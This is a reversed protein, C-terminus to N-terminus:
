GQTAEEGPSLYRHLFRLLAEAKPGFSDLEIYEDRTHFGEGRLGLGDIVPLGVGAVTNADSGGGVLPHESSGLGSAHQCEAYAKYLDLSQATREMPLRKVGGSVALTTGAVATTRAGENLKAILGEADAITEFRLDVNIEAHEPVTNSSTGGRVLGVNVTLGRGYDTLSQAFDIFRGLSWIANAGNAHANGSHAAKGTSQVRVEGVGRRCTVIADGKRGSEFVLAAEAVRALAEIHPKSDLSGIEEDSVSIVALPLEALLAADAFAKLVGWIVALGGKMDLCGPGYGRGAEERFGEFHGPPFVTDHHGILLIPRRRSAEPTMWFLHDGVGNGAERRFELGPLAFASQLRDAMANVAAVEKSYSNVNVWGRTHELMQPVLFHANRILEDLPM